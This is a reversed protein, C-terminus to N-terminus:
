AIKCAVHSPAQVVSKPKRDVQSLQHAFLLTDGNVHVRKFLAALLCLDSKGLALQTNRRENQNRSGRYSNDIPLPPTSATM